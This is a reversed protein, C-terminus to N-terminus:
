DGRVARGETFVVVVYQALDQPHGVLLDDLERKAARELLSPRIDCRESCPKHWLVDLRGYGRSRKVGATADPSSSRESARTIRRSSSSICTSIPTPVVPSCNIPNRNGPRAPPAMSRNSRPSVTCM